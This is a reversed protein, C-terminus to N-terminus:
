ETTLKRILESVLQKKLELNKQYAEEYVSVVQFLKNKFSWDFDATRLSRLLELVSQELDSLCLHQADNYNSRLKDFEIEFENLNM